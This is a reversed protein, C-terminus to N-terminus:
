CGATQKNYFKPHYAHVPNIQSLIPVTPHRENTRYHVIQNRLIHPIEPSASPGNAKQSPSHEM